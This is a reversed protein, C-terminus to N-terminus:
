QWASTNGSEFGDSFIEGPLEGVFVEGVEVVGGERTALYVHYPTTVPPNVTVNGSAAVTHAIGHDLAMTEYTGGTANWSLVSPEGADIQDPSAGFAIAPTLGASIMASDTTPSVSLTHNGAASTAIGFPTAAPNGDLTASGGGAGWALFVPVTVGADGVAVQNLEESPAALLFAIKPLSGLASNATQSKDTDPTPSPRDVIFSNLSAPSHTGFPIPNGYVAAGHNTVNQTGNWFQNSNYRIDNIPETNNDSDFIVLGIDESFVNSLINGTMRIQPVGGGGPDPETFLASGLLNNGSIANQLFKSNSINLEAGKAFIAGGKEVATNAVFATNTITALTHQLMMIAGGAGGTGLADNGAILVDDADFDAMALAIGSGTGGGGSAQTDCDYLIVRELLIPARSDALTGQTVGGLGYARNTDGGMFICGGGRAVTTVTDYRGQILSDRMVLSASPYNPDGAGDNSNGKIAGGFGSGAIDDTARNGRFVSDEVIASARFMSLGGGIPSSNKILRSNILRLRVQNEVHIAGGEGPTPPPTGPQNSLSNNIFTTNAVFIDTKPTTYPVTWTGIAYLGGGAWPTQNGEFRSNTIWAKADFFHIGGGVVTSLHGVVNNRNNLFIVRNMWATGIDLRFGAGSEFSTNNRITSDVWMTFADGFGFYGGGGHNAHSNELVCRFFYSKGNQQTIGGGTATVTSRGNRFTIDEFTVAGGLTANSSMYKLLRRTNGGDIIVTAGTAARVTFRKNPNNISFGDTPSAYTGAAMEIVGNNTVNAFASTLQAPTSVAIFSQASAQAPLLAPGLLLLIALPRLM